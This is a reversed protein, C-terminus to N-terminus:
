NEIKIVFGENGKVKIVQNAPPLRAPKIYRTDDGIVVKWGRADTRLGGCIFEKCKGRSHFM